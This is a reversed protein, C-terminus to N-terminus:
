PSTAGMVACPRATVTAAMNTPMRRRAIGMETMELVKWASYARTSLMRRSRRSWSACTLGRPAPSAVLRLHASAVSSAAKSSAGVYRRGRMTCGGGAGIAGVGASGSAAAAATRRGRESAWLRM